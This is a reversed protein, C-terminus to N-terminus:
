DDRKGGKAQLRVLSQRLSTKKMWDGSTTIEEPTREVRLSGPKVRQGIPGVLHGWSKPHDLVSWGAEISQKISAIMYATRNTTHAEDALQTLKDCVAQAAQEDWVKGRRAARYTDFRQLQEMLPAREAEPVTNTCWASFVDMPVRTEGGDSRARSPTYKGKPKGLLNNPSMKDGRQSVNQWGESQCKTLPSLKDPTVNQWGESDNEALETEPQKEPLETSATWRNVLIGDVRVKWKKILGMSELRKLIRVASREDVSLWRMIYAYSGNYCSEEDQSFGYILAYALLDNGKLHLEDVMWDQINLYNSRKKKERM